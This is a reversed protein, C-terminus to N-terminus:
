NFFIYYRSISNLYGVLYGNYEAKGIFYALLNYSQTIGDKEIIGLVAGVYELTPNFPSIKELFKNKIDDSINASIFYYNGLYEKNYNYLKSNYSNRLFWEKIECGNTIM